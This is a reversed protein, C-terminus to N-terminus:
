ARTLVLVDYREVVPAPREASEARADAALCRLGADFETRSLRAFKSQPRVTMREHFDRLSHTVPRAFSTVTRLLLGAAAFDAVIEAESPFRRSDLVRLRPWYAYVLADLRERVTTRVVLTGGPRLVRATERAARARDPLHHIVRSMLALDFSGDRAPVAEATGGVYHVTDHARLRRARDLMPASPDVGLVVSPTLWRAMASCFMGTGAGLEVIAPDPRDSFSGILRAWDRLTEEPMENGREYVGALREDDHGRFLGPGAGSGAATSVNKDGYTVTYADM